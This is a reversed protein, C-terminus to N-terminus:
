TILILCIPLSILSILTEATIIIAMLEANGGLQRALIYASSATPLASFLVLVTNLAPSILFVQNCAYIILPLLALKIFSSVIVINGM